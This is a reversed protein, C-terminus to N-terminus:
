VASAESLRSWDAWVQSMLTVHLVTSTGYGTTRHLVLTRTDRTHTHTHKIHREKPKLKESENKINRSGGVSSDSKIDPIHSLSSPSFFKSNFNKKSVYLLTILQQKCNNLIFRCCKREASLKRFVWSSCSDNAEKDWSKKENVQESWGFCSAATPWRREVERLIEERQSDNCFCCRQCDIWSVSKFAIMKVVRHKRRTNFLLATVTM